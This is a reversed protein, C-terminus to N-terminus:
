WKGCEEDDCRAHLFGAAQIEGATDHEAAWPRQSAALKAHHERDGRQRPEEVVCRNDRHEHREDRTPRAAAVEADRQHEQRQRVRRNEPPGAREDARAGVEDDRTKALSHSGVIWNSINSIACSPIGVSPIPISNMTMVDCHSSLSRRPAICSRPLARSYVIAIRTSFPEGTM